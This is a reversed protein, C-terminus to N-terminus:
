TKSVRCLLARLQYTGLAPDYPPGNNTLLTANSEWCGHEPGPKEPFWWAHEVHVVRPDIGNTLKAKQKIKGRPSEIFVWDDDEIHLKKATDPHIEVLPDPHKKRLRPIQRFESHFFVPIKAGTTLVLPYEKALEPTSIPSEPSEQYYPLPDYGLTEMISSYIEVKKSPTNFGDKEYKRYQMPVSLHGKQKLEAFTICLPELQYNYVEEISETGSDLNLSRALEVLIEEDQKCEGIQVIRQQALVVNEAVYPCGVIQDVELWSAAPLVLDALEATPTMYLDTVMFFDLARIAQYVERSNAYTVLGNNGFILWAKVPYPEGTLMAKLLAPIHASFTTLLRHTEAGLRRGLMEPPLKEQLYPFPRLAHMGFIDGGPVDLNGTIARLIALARLTQTSNPTQEVAVGWDLCAPRTTAYARAAERILGSPVWTIPEAWEPTYEVVREALKDFGHTWKGCFESDYLKEQIIVNLMSLALADDTGPRLQVWLDAKAATESRRPDVAILKAGRKRGQLFRTSIEGDGSIAAPNSGWVLICAPSVDGYYDCWPMDGLTIASVMVRPIFCQACGPECWNPTGFANAFRPVFHYHHRGTGQGLAVAEPGYRAKIDSLRGVIEDLADDWSVRQWGGEGRQGSRKMPHKLRAPNYLHDISARGKSCLAGQNLPSDPDGEVKVVKGSDVHVLVGCGGHCMRCASKFVGKGQGAKESM